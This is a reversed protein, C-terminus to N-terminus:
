GGAVSARGAVISPDASLVELDAVEANDWSGAEDYAVRYDGTSGVADYLTLLKLKPFQNSDLSQAVTTYFSEQNADSTNRDGFEGLGWPKSLYDHASDSRNTLDNYFAGVAQSYNENNSAYPDWLVWDVLDNGPWLDDIMCDWGTFGMYDMVWVANTVGLAAFRAEVNAWM